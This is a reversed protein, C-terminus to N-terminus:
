KEHKTWLTPTYPTHRTHYPRTHCPAYMSHANVAHDVLFQKRVIQGIVLFMYTFLEKPWSNSDLKRRSIKYLRCSAKTELNEVVPTWHVAPTSNRVSEERIPRFQSGSSTIPQINWSERIKRYLRHVINCNEWMQLKVEHLYDKLILILAVSIWFFM